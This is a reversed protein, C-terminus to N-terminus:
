WCAVRLAQGTVQRSEDSALFLIADAVDEPMAPEGFPNLEIRLQRYKEPMTALRPNDVFGPVVCNVNVHHRAMERALSNTFGILGAKAASYNVQGVNGLYSRSSILVIKGYGQEIMQPVAARCALFTTRLNLDIVGDWQEDTMKHILADKSGGVTAVLIDLRGLDAVVRAVLDRVQEGDRADAQVFVVRDSDSDGLGALFDAQRSIDLDAIVVRAGERCFRGAIARGIVGGGGTVIAVRDELRGSV